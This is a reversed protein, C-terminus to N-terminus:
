DRKGPVFGQDLGIKAQYTFEGIQTKREQPALNKKAFEETYPQMALGHNSSAWLKYFKEHCERCSVSGTYGVQANLPTVASNSASEGDVPATALVAVFLIFSGLISPYLAKLM